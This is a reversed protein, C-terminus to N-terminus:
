HKPLYFEGSTIQHTQSFDLTPIVQYVTASFTGRVRASETGKLNVDGQGSGGTVIKGNYLLYVTNDTTDMSGYFVDNSLSDYIYYEGTNGKYPSLSFGLFETTHMNDYKLGQGILTEAMSDTWGAKQDFVRLSGDIQAQIRGLPITVGSNPNLPNRVDTPKSPNANYDGNNCSTVLVGLGAILMCGLFVKKM